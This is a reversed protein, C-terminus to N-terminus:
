EGPGGGLPTHPVRPTTPGVSRPGGVSPPNTSKNSRPNTDSMAPSIPSLGPKLSGPGAASLALPPLQHSPLLAAPLPAFKSSSLMLTHDFYDDSDLSLESAAAGGSALGCGPLLKDFASSSNAYPSSALQQQQSLEPRPSLPEAKVGDVMDQDLPSHLSPHEHSPPTPFM